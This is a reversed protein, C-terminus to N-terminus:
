PRLHWNDAIQGFLAGGNNYLEQPEIGHEVRLRIVNLADEFLESDLRGLETLDM